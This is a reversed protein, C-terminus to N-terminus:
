SDAPKPAANPKPALENNEVVGMGNRLKFVGSSVIKEGPKVGTEISVFDGRARGTRIFQQRVVLGAPANNTAPKQEIVYVSDGFPASLVSTAPVVTVTQETPLLVEVRAFMGPRLLADPNDFTARLRVSRTASDLDPNTATLVGGFIRNTYADSTLRVKMEDSLQALNQQPLSFDAYVPTLSQLSVIPKGVDLYEGLNVLRLGLKGAFPARITKKAITARINDANAQNQKLTAEATDLDSQSVTKSAFLQRTREANIRSLDVQAEIARLQAEESSTDLRVLLAGNTVVAGSEFAIEKVTGALETTVNVGQAATITGVAVITGQWKEEKVIASSITEPPMAQNKGAAKLKRIQLFKTGGLVALAGAVIVIGAVIGIVRKM